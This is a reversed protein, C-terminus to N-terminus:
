QKNKAEQASIYHISCKCRPHAAPRMYEGKNFGSIFPRDIKVILGSLSQCIPCAGIGSEWEKHTLGVEKAVEERGYGYLNVSETQAIMEARNPNVLIKNLRETLQDRNEGLKLSLKTQNILMKKTTANIDKSIKSVYEETTTQAKTLDADLISNYRIDSEMADVGNLFLPVATLMLAATLNIQEREWQDEIMMNQAIEEYYDIETVEAATIRMLNILDPLRKAQARFYSLLHRKTLVANKIFDEFVKINKRYRATYDEGGQPQKFRYVDLEFDIAKLQPITLNSVPPLSLM